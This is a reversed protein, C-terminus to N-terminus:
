FIVTGALVEEINGEGLELLLAGRSNVGAAKGFIKGSPTEISINRGILLDYGRWEELIGEFGEREFRQYLLELQNLIEGLIEPLLLEEKAEEWLVAATKKIEDPFSISDVKANIGIGAVIFNVQDMEASIETLIGALKRDELYIDNPWKIKLSVSSVEQIGRVVALSALLTFVAALQPIIKPKLIVSFWIGGAPSFWQNKGRGRSGTQKGAVVVTGPAAGRSALERARRNTSDIIRWYEIEQGIHNTKLYRKIEKPLLLDPRRTLCYGKRPAAQILYGERRLERIHKWVATRSIRLRSGLSEGSVYEGLNLILIDAINEKM